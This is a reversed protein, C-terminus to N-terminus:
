NKKCNAALSTLNQVDTLLKAGHYLLAGTKAQIGMRLIIGVM